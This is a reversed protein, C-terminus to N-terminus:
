GNSGAKGEFPVVRPDLGLAPEEAPDFDPHKTAMHRHLDQFSRNCCPCLGAKARTRLRTVQGRYAAASRESRELRARAREREQRIEDDKQALQQKLREAEGEPGTGPPAAYGRPVESARRRMRRREADTLAPADKLLDLQGPLHHAVM